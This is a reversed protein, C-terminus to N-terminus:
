ITKIVTLVIGIFVVVIVAGIVTAIMDDEEKTMGLSKRLDDNRAELKQTIKELFELIEDITFKKEMEIYRRFSVRTGHSFAGFVSHKENSSM